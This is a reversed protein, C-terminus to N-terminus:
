GVGEGPEVYPTWVLHGAKNTTLLHVAKKGAVEAYFEDVCLDFEPDDLLTNFTHSSCLYWIGGSAQTWTNLKTHEVVVVLPGKRLLEAANRPYEHPADLQLTGM